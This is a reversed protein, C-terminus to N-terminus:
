GERSFVGPMGEGSSLCFCRVDGKILFPGAAQGLYTQMCPDCAEAAPPTVCWGSPVAGCAKGLGAEGWGLILVCWLCIM